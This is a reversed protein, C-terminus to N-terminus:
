SAGDAHLERGLQKRIARELCGLERDILWQEIGKRVMCDRQLKIQHAIYRECADPRLEAARHAQRAIYPGRRNIPFPIITAM